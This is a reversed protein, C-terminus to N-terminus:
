HGRRVMYPTTTQVSYAPPTYYYTRPQTAYNYFQHGAVLGAATGAIPVFPNGRGYFTGAAAGLTGGATEYYFSGGPLSGGQTQYTRPAYYSSNPMAYRPASYRYQASALSPVLVLSSLALVTTIRM